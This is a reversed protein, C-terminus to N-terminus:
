KLTVNISGYKYYHFKRYHIVVDCQVLNEFISSSPSALFYSLAIICKQMHLVVHLMKLLCLYDGVSTKVEHTIM